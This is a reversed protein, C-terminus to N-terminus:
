KEWGIEVATARGVIVQQLSEPMEAQTPSVPIKGGMLEAFRQPFLPQRNPEAYGIPLIPQDTAMDYKDTAGLTHLFEHATVVDNSGMMTRDAFAHVIGFLGKQLGISHPLRPSLQPDHFLVFLEIDPKPGALHTPTRWAWYRTRLSWLAISLRSASPEIMPPLERIPAALSFRVPRDLHIGYEASETQFFNELALLDAASLNQVFHEATTSGDANIPFVTVRLPTDWDTTYLRDFYSNLGVFLLILLLILIRIKRWM